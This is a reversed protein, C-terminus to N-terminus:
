GCRPPARTGGYATRLGRARAGTWSYAPVLVWPRTAEGRRPMLWGALREVVFGFAAQVSREASLLLVAAALAAALHGASMAPSPLLGAGASHGHGVTLVIHGLTQGAILLGAVTGARPERVHRDTVVVGPLVCAAALSLLMSASLDVPGGGLGHGALGAAGSFLGIFAGRLRALLRLRANM